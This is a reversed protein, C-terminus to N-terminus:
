FFKHIVGKELDSFDNFVKKESSCTKKISSSKISGHPNESVSEHVM